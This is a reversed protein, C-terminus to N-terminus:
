RWGSRPCGLLFAGRISPTRQLLLFLGGFGIFLVPLLHMPTFALPTLSGVGLASAGRLLMARRLPRDAGDSPASLAHSQVNM